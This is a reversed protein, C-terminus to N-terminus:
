CRWRGGGSDGKECASIGAARQWQEGKECASIGANYTYIVNPELKVEWMESLLALAPQWQEGKECASIGASYSFIVNPQLKVEWMEGLLLSARQWQGGKECASIGASYLHRQAASEGGADREAAGFGAAVARGERVRQDWCQLQPHRRAGAEGGVHREAVGAGAAVARGDRVRQDWRQLQSFRVRAQQWQRRPNGFWSAAPRLSVM